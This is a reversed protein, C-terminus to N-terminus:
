CDQIAPLRCGARGGNVQVAHAEVAEAKDVQGLARLVAARKHFAEAVDAREVHQNAEFTVAASEYLANAEELREEDAYRHARSYWARARYLGATLSLASMVHPNRSVEDDITALAQWYADEAAQYKAQAALARGLEAYAAAVDPHGIGLTQARVTAVQHYLKEAESWHALETHLDALNAVLAATSPHDNGFEDVGLVVAREAAVIAEEFRGGAYLQMVRGHAARLEASQALSPSTYGATALIVFVASMGGTLLRKSGRMGNRARADNMKDKL